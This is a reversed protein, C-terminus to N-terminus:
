LLSLPALSTFLHWWMHLLYGKVYECLLQDSLWCISGLVTCTIYGISQTIYCLYFNLSVFITFLFIFNTHFCIYLFILLPLHIPVNPQFKRIGFTITCLMAIEDICQGYWRLTGHLIISGIGVFILGFSLGDKFYLTGIIIYSFSSLTNFYEAIWFVHTYKDECFSVSTDSPGWYSM